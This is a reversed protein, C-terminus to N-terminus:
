VACDRTSPRGFYRVATELSDALLLVRSMPMHLRCCEHCSLAQKGVEPLSPSLNTGYEISKAINM